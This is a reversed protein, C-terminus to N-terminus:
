NKKKELSFKLDFNECATSFVKWKAIGEIKLFSCCPLRITQNFATFSSRCTSSVVRHGFQLCRSNNPSQVATTLAVPNKSHTQTNFLRTLTGSWPFNHISITKLAPSQKGASILREAAATPPQLGNPHINSGNNM